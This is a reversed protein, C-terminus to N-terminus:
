NPRDEFVQRNRVRRLRHLMGDSNSLVATVRDGSRLGSLSMPQKVRYSKFTIRLLGLLNSQRLTIASMESNVAMVTGQVVRV